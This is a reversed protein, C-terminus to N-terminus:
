PVHQLQVVSGTRRLTGAIPLTSTSLLRSLTVRFGAQHLARVADRASLGAVEPIVRLLTDSLLDKRAYPLQIRYPGHASATSTAGPEPRVSAVRSTTEPTSEVSGDRQDSPLSSRKLDASKAAALPVDRELIALETRDLAANRAALAARLVVSTVPAAIEGGYYARRPSDLKVLVVYQPREAPFLGVFSATYNGAVYGKGNVTRRATGSKGAVSFAALDAKVATGSDVVSKLLDRMTSAVESSYVRRLARRESRYMVDGTWNRIEKVIHPQLLEGGNAIAAYASVLQLPTVSLEYGMVISAESQSSWLGPERLTGDSEGPLPVGTSIGLGLDRLTEFKERPTLRSGFSVMGINSSFRIVDSLPMERARHIDTITRGNLVMVGDHTDIIENIRARKRDLLAAAIFPKLTSGPEFPETVATVSLSPKGLRRSAMALVDGNNPNIVVIDGGEAELSDVARALVRECIDQLDRNITLTISNGAHPSDDRSDPNDLRRGRVDRAIASLASDGRLISDLALEIGGAARGSADVTGIIRRIGPASVYERKMVPETHVGSLATLESIDSPVFLGPLTVWKRRRDLSARIIRADIGAAKLARSMPASSAVEQPAISVRFMGRSEVLIDGTADYISGRLAAVQRDKFQQRRAKEAWQSGQFIQVRAAQAILLVAFLLLLAHIISSRSPRAM